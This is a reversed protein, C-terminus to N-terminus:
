KRSVDLWLHFVIIDGPLFRATPWERRHTTQVLRPPSTTAASATPMGVVLLETANNKRKFFATLQTTADVLAGRVYAIMFGQPMAWAYDGNVFRVLGTRVYNAATRVPDYIKAEVFLCRLRAKIGPRPQVRPQITLDPQKSISKGSYNILSTERHAVVFNDLYAKPLAAPRAASLTDLVDALHESIEVEGAIDLDIGRSNQMAVLERWAIRLAQDVAAIELLGFAPYPYSAQNALARRILSGPRHM